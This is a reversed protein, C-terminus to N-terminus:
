SISYHSNAGRDFRTISHLRLPLLPRNEPHYDILRVDSDEVAVSLSPLKGGVFRWQECLSCDGTRLVDFAFRYFDGVSEKGNISILAHWTEAPTTASIFRVSGDAM